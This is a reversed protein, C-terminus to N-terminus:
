KKLKYKKLIKDLYGMGFVEDFLRFIHSIAFYAGAGTIVHIVITIIAKVTTSNDFYIVKTLSLVLVM